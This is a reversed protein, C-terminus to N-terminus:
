ESEKKIDLLVNAIHLEELSLVETRMISTSDRATIKLKARQGKIEYLTIRCPGYVDISQGIKRQLCLGKM